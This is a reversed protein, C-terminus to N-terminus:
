KVFPSKICTRLFHAFSFFRKKGQKTQKLLLVFTLSFRFYFMSKSLLDSTTEHKLSRKRGRERERERERERAMSTGNMPVKMLWSSFLRHAYLRPLSRKRYLLSFPRSLRKRGKLFLCNQWKISSHAKKETTIALSIIVTWKAPSLHCIYWRSIPMQHCLTTAHSCVKRCHGWVSHTASHMFGCKCEALEFPALFKGLRCAM